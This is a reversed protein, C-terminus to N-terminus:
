DGANLAKPKAPPKDLNKMTRHTRKLSARAQLIDPAAPLDEPRTNSLKIMTQRVTKGVERATHELMSQGTVGDSVIKDRTQTIRFLNAALETSHMFDLPSRTGPVGKRARLQTMTMNYMGRYGESQFFHYKEVRAGKAVSSLSTEGDTLEGRIVVRDVQAQANVYDQFADALGALYTQALAVEAKKSDANMAVLFCGFRSLKWDPVTKGDITMTSQRFNEELPIGTRMSAAIARQIPGKAFTSYDAYGLFTAFERASWTTEGNSHAGAEFGILDDSLTM